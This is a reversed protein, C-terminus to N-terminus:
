AQGEAGIKGLYRPLNALFATLVPCTWEQPVPRTFDPLVHSGIAHPNAGANVSLWRPDLHTAPSQSDPVFCYLRRHNQFCPLGKGYYIIGPRGQIVARM